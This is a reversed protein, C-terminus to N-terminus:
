TKLWEVELDTHAIFADIYRSIKKLMLTAIPMAIKQITFDLNVAPHHLEAVLAYEIHKKRIALQFLSPHLNHVHVVDPRIREIVRWLGKLVRAYGIGTSFSELKYVTIKGRREIGSSVVPKQSSVDYTSSVIYVEHGREALEEAVRRVLTEVGGASPPYPYYTCVIAIRM